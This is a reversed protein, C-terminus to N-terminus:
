SVPVEVPGFAGDFIRSAQPAPASGPRDACASVTLLVGLGAAGLFRRRTLADTAPAPVPMEVGKKTPFTLTVKAALSSSLHRAGPM